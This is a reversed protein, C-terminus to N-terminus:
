YLAATKCCNSVCTSQEKLFQPVVIECVVQYWIHEPQGIVHRQRRGRDQRAASAHRNSTQEVVRWQKRSRSQRGLTRQGLGDMVCALRSVM